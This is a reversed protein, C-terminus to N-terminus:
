KSNVKSSLSTCFKKHDVVIPSFCLLCVKLIQFYQTVIKILKHLIKTFNLNQSSQTPSFPPHTPYPEVVLLSSVQTRIHVHTQGPFRSTYGKFKILHQSQSLNKVATSSIAISVLLRILILRCNAIERM